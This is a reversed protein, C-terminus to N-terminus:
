EWKMPKHPPLVTTIKVKCAPTHLWTIQM